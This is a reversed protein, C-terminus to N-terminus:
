QFFQIYKQPDLIRLHSGQNLDSAINAISTIRVISTELDVIEVTQSSRLVLQMGLSAQVHRSHDHRGLVRRTRSGVRRRPRCRVALISHLVGRLTKLEPDRHEELNFAGRCMPCTNMNRNVYQQVCGACVQHSCPCLTRM